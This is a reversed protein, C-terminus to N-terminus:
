TKKRRKQLDVWKKKPTDPSPSLVVLHGTPKQPIPGPVPQVPKLFILVPGPAPQVSDLIEPGPGLVPQSRNWWRTGPIKKTM